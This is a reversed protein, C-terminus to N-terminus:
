GSRDEVRVSFGHVTLRAPELQEEAKEWDVSEPDPSYLLTPSVDYNNQRTPCRKIGQGRIHLDYRFTGAELSPHTYSLMTDSCRTLFCTALVPLNSRCSTLSMYATVFLCYNLVRM